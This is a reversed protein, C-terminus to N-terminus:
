GSYCKELAEECHACNLMICTDPDHPPTYKDFTASMDGSFTSTQVHGNTRESPAVIRKRGNAFDDRYKKLSKAKCVCHDSTGIWVHTGPLECSTPAAKKPPNLLKTTAEPLGKGKGWGHRNVLTQANTGPYSKEWWEAYKEDSWNDQPYESDKGRYHGWDKSQWDYDNGFDSWLPGWGKAINLKLSKVIGGPTVTYGQGEKLRFKLTVTLGVAKLASMLHDERSSWFVGGDVKAATLEGGQFRGFKLLGDHQYTVAGYAEIERLNRGEGLHLFIHQSDVECQRDLDKNLDAHNYVMGNHAGIIKLEPFEFPHSNEAKVAGTTALRTHAIHINGLPHDFVHPAMRGLGRVIKEGNYYGWSEGGRGDNQIALLTHAYALQRKDVRGDTFWGFLGCM